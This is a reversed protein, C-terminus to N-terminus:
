NRKENKEEEKDLNNIKDVTEVTKVLVTTTKAIEGTFKKLTNELVDQLAKPIPLKCLVMNKFISLLEFVIFLINFLENFGVYELNLAEKINEPIAYILNISMVMDILSLFIVSFLMGVKRIIGDIGISSNIEKERIARLIGFVTDFIIVICLVRFSNNNVLKNTFANIFDM